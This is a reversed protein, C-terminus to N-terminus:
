VKGKGNNLNNRLPCGYVAHESAAKKGQLIKELAARGESEGRVGRGKTIGGRFIVDGATNFVFIDFSTRAGLISAIRGDPDYHIRAMPLKAAGATLDSEAWAAATGAPRYFVLHVDAADPATGLALAFEDLSVKSCPCHPHAAIVINLKKPNFPLGTESPWHTVAGAKEGPTFEYRGLIWASFVVGGSWALIAGGIIWKRTNKM